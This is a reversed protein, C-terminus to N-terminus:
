KTKPIASSRVYKSLSVKQAAALRKMEMKEQHSVRIIVVDTKNVNSM